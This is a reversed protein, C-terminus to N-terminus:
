HKETGVINSSVDPLTASIAASYHSQAQRCADVMKCLEDPTPALGGTQEMLDNFAAESLSKRAATMMDDPPTVSGALHKNM